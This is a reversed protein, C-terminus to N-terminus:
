KCSVTETESSLHRKAEQLETVSNKCIDLETDRLQILKNWSPQVQKFRSLREELDVIEQKIGRVQQPQKVM